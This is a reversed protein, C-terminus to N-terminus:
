PLRAVVHHLLRITVALRIGVPFFAVVIIPLPDAARIAVRTSRHPRVPVRAFDYRVCCESLQEHLDEMRDQSSLMFLQAAETTTVLM